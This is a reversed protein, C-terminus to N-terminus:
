CLDDIWLECVFKDTYGVTINAHVLKACLCLEDIMLNVWLVYVGCMCLFMNM